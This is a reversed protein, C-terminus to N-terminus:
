GGPVPTFASVDLGANIMARYVSEPIPSGVAPVADPTAQYGVPAPAELIPPRPEYAVPAPAPPAPAAYPAPVPPAAPPAYQVLAPAAYPVAGVAPAAYPVAGLVAQAVRAGSPGPTGGANIVAAGPPTYRATYTLARISGKGEEDGTWRVFLFGDRELKEGGAARIADRIASLMRPKDCYLRRVGNDDHSLRETTDLDITVGFIPNGDDYYKLAGGGPNERDYERAHYRTPGSLVRGGIERGPVKGFDAPTVRGGMLVDDGSPGTQEIPM